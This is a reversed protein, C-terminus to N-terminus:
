ELRRDRGIMEVERSLFRIRQMLRQAKLPEGDGKRDYTLWNEELDDMSFNSSFFMPLRQQMRYELIVGLVEDRVWSSLTGAGMDDLMLIPSKKVSDIKRLYSRDGISAKMESEFSPFHVLTTLVGSDALDNALAGLLYTKGVGFPGYFYFGPVFHKSKTYDKTFHVAQAFAKYRRNDHQDFHELSAHRIDAPMAVTTVRKALMEAKRKALTEEGPEYSIDILRDNVILKPEYGQAFTAQGQKRSKQIFLYERLKAISRTVADDALKNKNERVFKQIEPNAKIEKVALEYSKHAGQGNITRERLFQQIYKSVPKM